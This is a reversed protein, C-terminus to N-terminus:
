PYFLTSGSDAPISQADSVCPLDVPPAAPFTDSKLAKQAAGADSAMTLHALRDPTGCLSFLLTGEPIRLSPVRQLPQM